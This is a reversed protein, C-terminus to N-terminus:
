PTNHIQLISKMPGPTYRGYYRKGMSLEFGEVTSKNMRKVKGRGWEKNPEKAPIDILPVSIARVVQAPNEM